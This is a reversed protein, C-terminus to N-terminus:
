KGDYGLAGANGAGDGARCQDANFSGAGDGAHGACGRIRGGVRRGREPRDRRCCYRRDPRCCYQGCALGTRPRRAIPSRALPARSAAAIRRQGCAGAAGLRRAIRRPRRAGECLRVSRRVLQGRSRRLLERARDSDAALAVVGRPSLLPADRRADAAPQGSLRSAPHARARARPNGRDAATGYRRSREGADARGAAVLRRGDASGGTGIRPLPDSPRHAVAQFASRRDAALWKRRVIHRAVEATAGMGM